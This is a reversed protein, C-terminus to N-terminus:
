LKIIYALVYFPPMINHPQNGGSSQITIGTSNSTTEKTFTDTTGKDGRSLDRTNDENDIGARQRSASWQHQHGPDNVDHEHSPLEQLTLKHTEKGGKEGTSRSTLGNGAGHGLIFRGSLDPTGKTKGDCLAWGSPINDIEGSWMIIMGAVFAGEGVIKAASLTGETSLDGTVSLAGSIAGDGDVDLKTDPNPKGIGVNGEADVVLPTTDKNKDEIRLADGSSNNQIHLKATPTTTSLGVKGTASDIFLKSSNGTATEFNLGPLDPTPKQNIRWTLTEGAYFDLLNEASGRASIKLPTDDGLPKEIGDDSSNIAADILDQFDAGSPKAGTKFLEYLEERNKGVAM